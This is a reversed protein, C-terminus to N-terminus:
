YGGATEDSRESPTRREYVLRNKTEATTVFETNGRYDIWGDGDQDIGYGAQVTAIIEFVDSRATISNAMRTFRAAVEDFRRKPDNDNSLPYLFDSSYAPDPYPFRNEDRVLDGITTYYRGDAHKPRGSLILSSLRLAAIEDERRAGSAGGGYGEALLNSCGSEISCENPTPPVLANNVLAGAAIAANVLERPSSWPAGSPLGTITPAAIDDDAEIRQGIFNGDQDKVTQLADVVGPLGLLPTFLEDERAGSVTKTVVTSEATNINIKGPNRKRPALVIHSIAAIEGPAGLNRVRLALFQDHVRVVYPQWAGQSGTGYLIYGGSDPEYKYTPRWDTPYVVGPQSSDAGAAALGTARTRDTIVDLGLVPKFKRREGVEGSATPDLKLVEAPSFDGAADALLRTTSTAPASAADAAILTDYMGPVFTGIYLYYEGDELGDAADWVFLADPRVAEEAVGSNEAAVDARWESVYMVARKELPWRRAIDPQSLNAAFADRNFLYNQDFLYPLPIRTGISYGDPYPPYFPFKNAAKPRGELDVTEDDNPLEFLFVPAWAAPALIDKGTDYWSLLDGFNLGGPYTIANPVPRIPIFDAQGVTFTLPNITSMKLAENLTNGKMAADTEDQGLLVGRAATDQQASPRAGPLSDDAYVGVNLHTPDFLFRRQAVEFPDDPDSLQSDPVALAMNIMRHRRMLHPLRVLDASSTFPRDRVEARTFTWDRNEIVEYLDNGSRDSYLNIKEYAGFQAEPRDYRGLNFVSVPLTNGAAEWLRLLDPPDESIRAALNMRLPSGALAHGLLRDNLATEAPYDSNFRAYTDFGAYPFQDLLVPRHFLSLSEAWDDYNGDTAEWRNSTGFRDGNYLPDKRELSRYFDLGMQNPLWWSPYDPHLLYEDGYPSPMVDDITRNIVDYERYTVRDAVRGDSAPGEYLSVIVNDGPYWRREVFAKWDPPDLESGLYLADNTIPFDVTSAEADGLRAIFGNQEALSPAGGAAADVAKGSRVPKVSLFTIQCTLTGVARFAFAVSNGASTPDHPEVPYGCAVVQAFTAETRLVPRLVSSHAEGANFPNGLVVQVAGEYGGDHPEMKFTVLYKRGPILWNPAAQAAECQIALSGDPIGNAILMGDSFDWVPALPVVEPIIWADPDFVDVDPSYDLHYIVEDDSGPLDIWTLFHWPVDPNPDEPPERYNLYDNDGPYRSRDQFFSVPLTGPDFSGAGVLRGEDVGESASPDFPVDGSEELVIGDPGTIPNGNIDYNDAGDGREDILGDLDNDVMDKDLTGPVYAVPVGDEYRLWGGDGDNDIGDHEPYNPLFGGRLVVRAINNVSNESDPSFETDYLRVSGAAPNVPDKPGLQLNQLSVIRDWPKAAANPVLASQLPADGPTSEIADEVAVNDTRSDADALEDILLGNRLAYASTVGDGNNDVYDFLRDGVLKREFVSGTADGFPDAELSSTDAIRPATVGDIDLDLPWLPAPSSALGMGNTNFINLFEPTFVAPDSRYLDFKEYNAGGLDGQGSSEFSLLLLGNPSITTGAPIRWRSKFPDRPVETLGKATPPDPIGIELEWGGLEVAQDTTNVLEVYEHDPEQSFDFFNIDVPENSLRDPHIRLAICLGYNTSPIIVTHTMIGGNEAASRPSQFGLDDSGNMYYRLPNFEYGPDFPYNPVDPPLAFPTGDIFVWGEPEGPRGSICDFPVNAFLQLLADDYRDDVEAPDYNDVIYEYMDDLDNRITQMEGLNVYKIAYQLETGRTITPNGYPDATNITLYYRGPPLGDTASFIFEVVDDPPMEIGASDGITDGYTFSDPNRVLQFEPMADPYPTCMLSNVPITPPSPLTTDAEAEVRRVPRVMLENIRIAEIGTTTYSIHRAEPVRTGDTEYHDAVFDAFWADVSELQKTVGITLAAHEQIEELPLLEAPPIRERLNLDQDQPWYVARPNTDPLLDTKETTLTTRGHDYDRSDVVNVALQMAELQPDAPFDHHNPALTTPLPDVPASPDARDFLLGGFLLKGAGTRQEPASLHLDAQRLGRAFWNTRYENQNDNNDASLIDDKDLDNDGGILPIPKDFNSSAVTRNTIPTFDGNLMLHAAIQQPTALSFDLANLARFGSVTDRVYGVNRDTSYATLFKRLRDFLPGNNLAPKIQDLNQLQTDGLEGFEDAVANGDNNYRDTEAIRNRLPSLRQLEGPEDIGEFLGLLDPYDPNLGEDILGDGDNDIGDMALLLANGNDDTRGYGPFTADIKFAQQEGATNALADEPRGEPAGTLLNWLNQSLAIGVDPLVRTDYEHPSLGENLARMMPPEVDRSFADEDYTHGGAVNLNVKSAEDAIYIAARGVLDCMPEGSHTIRVLDGLLARTDVLNGSGAPDLMQPPHFTLSGNLATFLNIDTYGASRAARYLDIDGSEWNGPLRWADQYYNARPTGALVSNANKPTIPVYKYTGSAADYGYQFGTVYFPPGLRTNPGIYAYAEYNNVFLDYDNDLVDVDGPGLSVVRGEFFVNIVNPLTVTLLELEGDANPVYDNAIGDANFDVPITIGPLPATLFLKDEAPDPKPDGYIDRQLTGDLNKLFDVIGNGDNDLGDGIRKFDEEEPDRYPGLGHYVFLGMEIAEDPDSAEWVGDSDDDVTNDQAEDVLGNLNNDLNDNPYFRDGPIPIWISDKLGDGDNDVDAWTDVQEAPYRWNDGNPEPPFDSSPWPGYFDALVFPLYGPDYLRDEDFWDFQVGAPKLANIAGRSAENYAFAVDGAADVLVLEAAGDYIVISSPHFRPVFLWDSTRPGRYLPERYGDSFRVYFRYPGGGLGASVIGREIRSIDILPAGGAYLPLRDRMAWYKGAFAAGNFYTRWAHDTSTVDPHRLFDRNLMAIAIANAADALNDARVSNGVNTATQLELRSVTFMTLAIALLITMIAIAM